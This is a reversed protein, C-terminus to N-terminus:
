IGNARLQSFRGSGPDYMVGWSATGGDCTDALTTRWAPERCDALFANIYMWKSGNIVLGVYQRCYKWPHKIGNPVGDGRLLGVKALRREAERVNGDSPAWTGEFPPPGDRSCLRRTEAAASEPLITWMREGAAADVVVGAILVAVLM